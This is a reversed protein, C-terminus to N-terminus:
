QYLQTIQASTPEDPKDPTNPEVIFVFRAGTHSAWHCFGELAETMRSLTTAAGFIISSADAPARIPAISVSARASHAADGAIQAEATGTSAVGPEELQVTTFAPMAIDLRHNVPPVRDSAEAHMYITAVEVSPGMHKLGYVEFDLLPPPPPPPLPPPPRSFLAGLSILWMVLVVFVILAIMRHKKSTQM